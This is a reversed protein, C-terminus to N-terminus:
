RSPARVQAIRAVRGNQDYQYRLRYKGVCDVETLRGEKDYGYRLSARNPMRIARLQGKAAGSQVYEFETVGGFFDRAIAPRGDKYEVSSRLGRNSLEYRVPLQTGPDFTYRVAEGWSTEARQVSSSRDFRVESDSSAARSVEGSASYSIETKAGSSDRIVTPLNSKFQVSQWSLVQGDSTPEHIMLETLTATDGYRATMASNDTTVSGIQGDPHWRVRFAVSNGVLMEVPRGAGDLGTRYRGGQPTLVEYTRRDASLRLEFPGQSVATVKATLSGSRDWNWNIASGDPMKRYLPRQFLDFESVEQERGNVISAIRTTGSTRHVQYNTASTSSEEKLLRGQSDYAFSRLKKDGDWVEAVLEGQYAYRKKERGLMVNTLRGASDYSYSVATGLSDRAGVIRGSADTKLDIRGATSGDVLAEMSALRGETWGYLVASSGRMWCVLNGAGDFYLKRGDGFFVVYSAKGYRYDKIPALGLVESPKQPVLLEGGIEPVIRPEVFTGAFTALPSTLEFTERSTTQDGKRQIPRRQKELRPFDLTWSTGFTGKQQFFSHFRRSLRLEGIATPLALDTEEIFGGSLEKTANGPLAIAKFREQGDLTVATIAQTPQLAKSLIPVVAAVEASNPIERIADDSPSLRVGGYISVVGNAGKATTSPTTTAFAVPTVVHSRMWSPMPVGQDRLREAIAAILAIRRLEEFFAVPKDIGSERPPLSEAEATIKGYNETFWKTFAQASRTSALGAPELKGNRLAMRQTNVKLPVDFLTLDQGPLRKRVVEAPVIWFREWVSGGIGHPEFMLKMVDVFGPIESTFPQQTLNDKGLSYVKMVRDAEFLVWGVYTQATASGQRVIMVPGKPNSPNPDITVWPAEGQEYVSRFIAVVDDMRLPPLGIRGEAESILVLRGTRDDVAVGKLQGLSGLAEGAGRLYIGGVNSGSMPGPGETGGCIGISGGSGGPPLGGGHWTSGSSNVDYRSGGGSQTGGRENASTNTSGVTGWDYTVTGVIDNANEIRGIHQGGKLLTAGQEFGSAFTKEALKIAASDKLGYERLGEYTRLADALPKALTKTGLRNLLGLNGQALELAGKGGGLANAALSGMAGLKQMGTANSDALTKLDTFPLMPHERIGYRFANAADIAYALGNRGQMRAQISAQELAADPVLVASGAAQLLATTPSTAWKVLSGASKVARSPARGDRDVLNIPDNAAYAYTALDNSTAPISLLPDRQLFQGIASDYARYRTLYLGADGDYILGAFRLSIGQKEPRDEPSGFPEYSTRDVVAGDRGTAVRLSGLHDTLVFRPAGDEVFAVPTDGEWLYFTEKGSDDRTMLPLWVSAMADNLFSMREAGQKREVLLGEGDYLFEIRRKSITAAALLSRSDFELDITQGNRSYKTLNGATDSEVSKDGLSTLVGSWNFITSRMAANGHGIAIRNGVADYGYTARKGRSSSMGVLRGVQDYEFSRQDSQEPTYEQISQISGDQRYSYRLKLLIRNGTDAHTISKLLGDSGHEWITQVGNPLIRTRSRSATHYRYEVSGVPTAIKSVRDLYDYSYAVLWRDGVSYSKLKGLADYTYRLTPLGTRLVAVLRDAEDYQYASTGVADVMNTVRGFHDLDLQVKAGDHFRKEIHRLQGNKDDRYRIRTKKGGPTVIVTPRGSSDYEWAWEAGRGRRLFRFALFGAGLLGILVLVAIISRARMRGGVGKPFRHLRKTDSDLGGPDATGSRDLGPRKGSPTYYV